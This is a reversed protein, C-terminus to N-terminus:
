KNIKKNNNAKSIYLTEQLLYCQSGGGRREFILFYLLNDFPINKSELIKVRLESLDKGRGCIKIRKNVGILFRM